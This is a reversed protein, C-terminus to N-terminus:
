RCVHRGSAGRATSIENMSETLVGAAVAVERLSERVRTERDERHVQATM